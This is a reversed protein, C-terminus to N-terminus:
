QRLSLRGAEARFNRFVGMIVIGHMIECRLCDNQTDKQDRQASRSWAPAFPILPNLPSDQKLASILHRTRAYYPLRGLADLPFQPNIRNEMPILQLPFAVAKVIFRCMGRDFGDGA